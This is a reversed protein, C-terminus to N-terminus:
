AYASQVLPSAITTMTYITNVGRGYHNERKYWGREVEVGGGAGRGRREREREEELREENIRTQRPERVIERESSPRVRRATWGGEPRIKSSTGPEQMGSM